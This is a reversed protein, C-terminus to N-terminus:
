TQATIARMTATAVADYAHVTAVNAPMPQLGSAM